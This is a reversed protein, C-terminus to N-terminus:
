KKDKWDKHEGRIVWVLIVVAGIAAFTFLAEKVTGGLINSVMTSLIILLIFLIETLSM